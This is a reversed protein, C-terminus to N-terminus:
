GGAWIEGWIEGGEGYRVGRRWIEGWEWIEGVWGAWIEGWM